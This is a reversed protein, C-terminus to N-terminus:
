GRLKELRCFFTKIMSCFITKTKVQFAKQQQKCHYDDCDPNPKMTMTPFFDDM